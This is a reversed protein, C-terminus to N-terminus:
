AAFYVSLSSIRVCFYILSLKRALTMCMGTSPIFQVSYPGVRGSV